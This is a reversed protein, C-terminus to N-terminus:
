HLLNFLFTLECNHKAKYHTIVVHGCCSPNRLLQLLVQTHTTQINLFTLEVFYCPIKHHVNECTTPPPPTPSHVLTITFDLKKATCVAMVISPDQLVKHCFHSLISFLNDNATASRPPHGGLPWNKRSKM